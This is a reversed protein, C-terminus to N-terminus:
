ASYLYLRNRSSSDTRGALASLALLYQQAEGAAFPVDEDAAWQVAVSQLAPDEGDSQYGPLEELVRVASAPFAYLEDVAIDAMELEQEGQTHVAQAALSCLQEVEFDSIGPIRLASGDPAAGGSLAKARQLAEQHTAIFVEVFANSQSM